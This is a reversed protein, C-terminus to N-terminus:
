RLVHMFQRADGSNTSMVVFYVGNALFSADALTFTHIGLPQEGLDADVVQRGAADYIRFYVQSAKDIRYAWTTGSGAPVPNPYNQELRAFRVYPFPTGISTSHIIGSATAAAFGGVSASSIEVTCLSDSGALAEGAITFLTDKGPRAPRAPAITFSFTYISDSLRKLAPATITDGPAFLLRQPYFVTSNGLKVRGKVEVPPALEYLPGSYRVVIRAEQGVVAEVTDVTIQAAARTAALCLLPLLFLLPARMAM